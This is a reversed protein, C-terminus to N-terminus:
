GEVRMAAEARLEVDGILTGVLPVDTASRHRVEVRVRSGPEGRNATTVLTAGPALGTGALAATRAAGPRGDV